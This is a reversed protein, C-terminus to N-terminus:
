STNTLSWRVSSNAGFEEYIASAVLGANGKIRLRTEQNDHMLVLTNGDIQVDDFRQLLIGSFDIFNFFTVAENELLQEVQQIIIEKLQQNHDSYITLM